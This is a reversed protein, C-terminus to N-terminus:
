FAKEKIKLRKSNILSFKYNRNRRRRLLDELMLKLFIIQKELGILKKTPINSNKDSIALNIENENLNNPFTKAPSTKNVIM